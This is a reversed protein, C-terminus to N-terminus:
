PLQAGTESPHGPDPLWGRAQGAAPAQRLHWLALERKRAGRAQGPPSATDQERGHQALPDGARAPVDLRHGTGLTM